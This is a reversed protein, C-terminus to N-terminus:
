KSVEELGVQMFAFGLQRPDDWLGFQRPSVTGQPSVVTLFSVGAPLGLPGVRYSQLAGVKHRQEKATHIM